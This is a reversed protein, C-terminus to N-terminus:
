AGINAVGEVKDSCGTRILMGQYTESLEEASTQIQKELMKNAGLLQLILMKQRDGHKLNTAVLEEYHKRASRLTKSNRACRRGNTKASAKVM